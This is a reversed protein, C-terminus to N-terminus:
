CNGPCGTKRKLCENCGDFDLDLLKQVGHKLKHAASEDITRTGDNSWKSQVFYVSNTYSDYYIGDIGKDNGGDVIAEAADKAECGTYSMIALCAIGRTLLATSRDNEHINSLDIIGNFHQEIYAKIRANKLTSM